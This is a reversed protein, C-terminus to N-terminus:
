LDSFCLFDARSEILSLYKEVVAMGYYCYRALALPLTAHFISQVAFPSPLSAGRRKVYSLVSRVEHLLFSFSVHSLSMHTFDYDFM